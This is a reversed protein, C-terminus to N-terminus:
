PSLGSVLQSKQRLNASRWLYIALLPTGGSRMAHPEHCAHHIVEGPRRSRWSQVGQWWRSVGSLPVYLEEAEHWHAPYETHPGLLLVGAALQASEIAASSGIIECYGYHDSFKAGAAVGDYSRQWGLDASVAALQVVFRAAVPAAGASLDALCRLAPVRAPAVARAVHLDRPWSKLFDDVLPSHLDRLLHELELALSVSSQEGALAPAGNM